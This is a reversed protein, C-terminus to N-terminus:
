VGLYDNAIDQVDQEDIGTFMPVGNVAVNERMTVIAMAIDSEAITVQITLYGPFAAADVTIYLIMSIGLVDVTYLGSAFQGDAEIFIQETGDLSDGFATAYTELVSQPSGLGQLVAIAGMGQPTNVIIQDEFDTAEPELGEALVIEAGSTPLVFVTGEISAEASGSSGREFREGLQVWSDDDGQAALVTSSIAACTLITALCLSLTQWWTSRKM